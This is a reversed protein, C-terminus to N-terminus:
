QKKDEQASEIAIKSHKLFLNWIFGHFCFKPDEMEEAMFLIFSVNCIFNRSTM